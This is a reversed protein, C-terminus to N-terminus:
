FTSFSMVYACVTDGNGSANSAENLFRGNAAYAAGVELM